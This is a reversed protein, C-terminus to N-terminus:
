TRRIRPDIWAQLLDVAVNLAVFFQALVLIAGQLMPLDRTLIANNLLFGTGPWNFVTEVLISGGLLYGLQLGAVALVNPAVNRAIHRLIAADGMGKARLAEVFDLGMTDAVAARVIRTVIGLPIASLTVAPLLAYRLHSWDWHWALSGAIGMGMAPLLNFEVAFIVVLMIGLWYNPLSVGTIAISTALRDPWRGHHWGAVTGLTIGGAFALLAAGLALILTNGVAAFVQPAVPRGNAVSRAFDGHLARDLWLAFQVPLPRDFGYEHEMLHVLSAPADSPMVSTLPNGPALHVLSFVIFSVGLAIPVAYALRRILYLLM